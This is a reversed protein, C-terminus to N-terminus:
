AAVMAEGQWIVPPGSYLYAINDEVWKAAIDTSRQGNAENDFLNVVMIENLGMPVVYYNIFGPMASILPVFGEQIKRLVEEQSNVEYKRIVIYM